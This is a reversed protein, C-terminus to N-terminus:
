NYKKKKLEKVQDEEKTEETKTNEKGCNSCIFKEQVEKMLWNCYKCRIDM